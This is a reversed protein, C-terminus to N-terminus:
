LPSGKTAPMLMLLSTSKTNKISPKFKMASRATSRRATKLKSILLLTLTSLKIPKKKDPAKGALKTGVITIISSLADSTNNIADSVISISNALLGVTAKFGALIINSVISIISTRVVIKERTTKHM